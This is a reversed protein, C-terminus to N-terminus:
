IIIEIGVPAHDSGYVENLIFAKKVKSKLKEDVFVYDIRWGM